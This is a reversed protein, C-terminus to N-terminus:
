VARKRRDAKRSDPIEKRGIPPVSPLATINGSSVNLETLLSVASVSLAQAIKHIQSLRPDAQLSLIDNLTTQPPAGVRKSLQTPNELGQRRMEEQVRKLFVAQLPSKIPRKKLPKDARRM